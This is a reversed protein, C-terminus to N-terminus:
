VQLGSVPFSLGLCRFAFGRLGCRQRQIWARCGGGGGGWSAGLGKPRLGM